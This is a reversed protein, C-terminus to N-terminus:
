ILKNVGTFVIQCHDTETALWYYVLLVTEIKINPGPPPVAKKFTPPSM